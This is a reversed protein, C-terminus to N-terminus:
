SDQKKTIKILRERIEEVFKKEIDFGSLIYNNFEKKAEEIQEKSCLDIKNIIYIFEKGNFERKLRKLLKKQEEISYGSSLSPDVVFIIKDALNRIAALAIKEIPSRKEEDKNLLGPTDIFQIEENNVKTYGVMISKTTFPYNNIEPKSGTIRSLITSKGVNPLGAIIITHCDKLKPIKSITILVEKLFAMRKKNRKVFSVARGFFERQTRAIMDINNLKKIKTSYHTELKKIEIASNKIAAIAKKIEGIKYIGDLTEFEFKTLSNLNPITKEIKILEDRILKSFLKVRLIKEDKLNEIKSKEKRAKFNQKFTERFSTEIIQDADKIYIQM